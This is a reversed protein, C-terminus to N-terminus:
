SAREGWWRSQTQDSLKLIAVGGSRGADGLEDVLLSRIREKVVEDSVEAESRIAAALAARSCRRLSLSSLLASVSAISPASSAAPCASVAVVLERTGFSTPWEAESREKLGDTGLVGEREREVADGCSEGAFVTEGEGEAGVSGFGVLAGEGAEEM